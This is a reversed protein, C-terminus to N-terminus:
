EGSPPNRLAKARALGITAPRYRKIHTTPKGLILLRLRQRMLIDLAWAKAIAKMTETGSEAMTTTTASM